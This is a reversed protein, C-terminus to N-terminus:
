QRALREVPPEPEAASVANSWDGARVPNAEALYHKIAALCADIPERSDISLGLGSFPFAAVLERIREESLDFGPHAHRRRASREVAVEPTVHCEILFVPVGIRELEERDLRHSYSANVICDFGLGIVTRATLHMARYAVQRDGRTHAADPLIRARISDM